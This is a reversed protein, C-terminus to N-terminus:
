GWYQSLAGYTSLAPGVYSGITELTGRETNTDRPVNRPDIPQYRRLPPLGAASYTPAQTLTNRAQSGLADMTSLYDQSAVPPGTPDFPSVRPNRLASARFANRRATERQDDELKARNLLASEFASEGQINQENATLGLNEQNLRNQGSAQTANGVASGVGRALNAYRGITGLTSGTAGTGGVSGYTSPGVFNGAEDFAAATGVGGAAAGGAGAVAPLSTMGLEGSAVSAGIGSTAGAEVGGLTGAEAAGAGGAAAGGYASLLAWGGFAAGVIAAAIAINRGVHTEERINGSDDIEWGEPLPFGQLELTKALGNKDSDSLHVSSPDKGHAQMWQNWVPSARMAINVQDITLADPNSGHPLTQLLAENFEQPM